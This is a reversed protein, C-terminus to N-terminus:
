PAGKGKAADVPGRGEGSDADGPDVDDQLDGEDDFGGAEPVLEVITRRRPQLYELAVRQVDEATVQEYRDLTEFLAKWTGFLIEHEAIAHARGNNTAISRLAQGRLMNRARELELPSIPAAHLRSIAEDLAALAMSPDGDPPLELGVKFLAQDLRWEFSAGVSTAVEAQRVLARNLRSGEGVALAFQLVDLAAADPHNAAVAKYGLSLSPAQAPYHIHGRREGRQEPEYNVPEPVPPGAPIDGYAQAILEFTREPDLDGAVVILANNPAYYTRFFELCDERSIAEIDGMWGIVPWRYPHSLWALADLEEDMMGGIDNDVRFRREEKVVDRESSLVEPVIRLSRMRDSELDIVLPLADRDFDEYYATVDNSTYANSYGGRSELERDFEKPGYKEAGNFMMHEFLHSIGTIGPRENRSGVRFFTYYTVTPVSPERLLRIQLGNPLSKEIVPFHEPNLRAASGAAVAPETPRASAAGAVAPAPRAAVLATAFAVTRIM